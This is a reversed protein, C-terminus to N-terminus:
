LFHEPGKSLGCDHERLVNFTFHLVDRVDPLEGGGRRLDDRTKGEVEGKHAIRQNIKKIWNLKM